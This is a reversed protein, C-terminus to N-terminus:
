RVLQATYFCSKENDIVSPFSISIQAYEYPIIDEEELSGRTDPMLCISIFALFM